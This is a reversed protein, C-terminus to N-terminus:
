ESALRAHVIAERGVGQAALHAHLPRRLAVEELRQELTMRKTHAARGLEDNGVYDEGMLLFWEMPYTADRGCPEFGSSALLRELSDFTFYNVHFPPAVWWDDKRLADRAAIQLPNFDNPVHVSVLGGPRLLPRAWALLDRPRPLHEFVLKAHVVDFSGRALEIEEYLGRHVTLGRRRAYEVATEEPEIGEAHWGAETAHEILLGGSCGVDLLAGGERGLLSSWDNLKDAHELEWFSRESADKELWGPNLDRYYTQAYMHALESDDPLPDLHAYGCSVCDIVDYDSTSSLLPGRHASV